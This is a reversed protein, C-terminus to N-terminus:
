NNVSNREMKTPFALSGSSYHTGFTVVGSYIQKIADIVQHETLEKLPHIFVVWMIGEGIAYKVDLATHFNAEMCKMVQEETIHSMEAVPSIIRMRNNYEDTLCLLELSDVSFQWQGQSGEVRDSIQLFINELQENNMSQASLVTSFMLLTIFLLTFRM